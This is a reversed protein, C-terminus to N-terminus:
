CDLPSPGPIILPIIVDDADENDVKPRKPVAIERQDEGELITIAAPNNTYVIISSGGLICPNASPGTALSFV